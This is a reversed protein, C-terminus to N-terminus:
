GIEGHEWRDIVQKIGPKAVAAAELKAALRELYHREGEADKYDYYEMMNAFKRGAEYEAHDLWAREEAEQEAMVEDYRNALDAYDQKTPTYRPRFGYCDKFMDSYAFLDADTVDAATIPTNMNSM